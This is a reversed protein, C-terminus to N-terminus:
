LLNKRTLDLLDNSKIGHIWSIGQKVCDEWEAQSFNPKRWLSRIFPFNEWGWERFRDALLWDWGGRQKIDQVKIALWHLFDLNGSLMMCDGNIHEHEGPIWAGAVCVRRHHNLALWESHIQALWDKRLPASDAAILFVAQYHPIKGSAIKHYIWEMAGFFISNCGLPWGVGRRTSTYSHVNFKRSVYKETVTDHKCDFRSVFLIDARSSHEPELDALLRALKMAQARDQKWFLLAILIKSSPITKM